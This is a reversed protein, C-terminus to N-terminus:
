VVALVAAIAMVTAGVYCAIGGRRVAAVRRARVELPVFDPTLSDAATRGWRGLAALAGAILLMVGMAAVRDGM